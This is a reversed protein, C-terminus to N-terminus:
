LAALRALARAGGLRGSLTLGRLALTGALRGSITLHGSMRLSGTTSIEDQVSGSLAVGPVDVMGHLVYGTPGPAWSGGRLGGGPSTQGFLDELTMAAAAAVRAAVPSASTAPHVNGLSSSPLPMAQPERSGPCWSPARGGALFEVASRRACGTRDTSFTSHGTDPIRLLQADSYGAWVTLDREYPTRLDDDGSLILTPTTSVSTPSPPAPPTPPWDLCFPLDSAAAATAPLFPATSRAPPSGLWSRLTAARGAPPSDPTWPMENEVCYTAAFLAQSIAV